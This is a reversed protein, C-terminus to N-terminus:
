QPSSKKLRVIARPRLAEAMGRATSAAPPNGVLFMGLDLERFIGDQREMEELARLEEEALTEGGLSRTAWAHCSQFNKYHLAFRWRAHDATNGTGIMFPWDSSQLLLLECGCQQVIRAVQGDLIRGHLQRALRRMACEAQYLDHWLQRTGAQWWVRHDGGDGWSSETLQVTRLPPSQHLYGQCTTLTVDGDTTIQRLLESIWQPGEFWWHGFLETDFAAVVVGREGTQRWHGHLRERLMRAFHTAHARVQALAWEPRYPQKDALETRRDTIRWYRLGGEGQKKHFELYAPDGPYGGDHQWVRTTTEFDRTFLAVPASSSDRGDVWHLRCPSHRAYDPASDRLQRADAIFYQLGAAALLQDLASREATQLEAIDDFPPSWQGAPRYACEPLWVGRPQVGFHRRYSATGIEIQARVSSELALLPLYAHTAASTLLEVAEQKQLRRLAGIMDSSLDDVFFAATRRYFEAWLGALRALHGDNRKTFFRQDESAAHVKQEAYALFETAFRPDALQDLLVPTLGITVKPSLNRSSLQTFVQLLPLYSEAVAEFLWEEELRNHTLVYPLHSHLVLAFAGIPEAM